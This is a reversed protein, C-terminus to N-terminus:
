IISFCKGQNEIVSYCIYPFNATTRQDNWAGDWTKGWKDGAILQVAVGDNSPEGSLWNSYNINAMNDTTFGLWTGGLSALFENEEQTAPVPLHGPSCRSKATSYNTEDDSRTYVLIRGDSLTKRLELFM